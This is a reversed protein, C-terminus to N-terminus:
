PTEEEPDALERDSLPVPLDANPDWEELMEMQVLLELMELLEADRTATGMASTQASAAPTWACLGLTLLM